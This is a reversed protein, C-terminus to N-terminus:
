QERVIRYASIGRALIAAAEAEDGTGMLEVDAGPGKYNALWTSLINTIGPFNANLAELTEINGFWSDTDVAILKDDQEGDDKMYLVGIVRTRIISGTKARPGLVFVDLPDDDGGESAPMLSQPVMGYNAPYPLYRIVRLSDGRVEWELHGTEKNVEWKANSGAPIEIVTNVLQGSAEPSIGHLFDRDRIATLSSTHDYPTGSHTNENCGSIM